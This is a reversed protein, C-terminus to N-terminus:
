AKAGLFEHRARAVTAHNDHQDPHFSRRYYAFYVPLAKRFMGRWGFLTDLGRVVGPLDLLRGSARLMVVTRAATVTASTM